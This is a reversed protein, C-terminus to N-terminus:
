FGSPAPSIITTQGGRIQFVVLGRQIRGTPRLRFLGGVGSFGASAEIAPRSFPRQPNRRVLEAALSVADYGLGATANPKEGNTIEFARSFNAFSRDDPGAFIAGELARNAADVTSWQGSGMLQVGGLNAGSRQLAAVIASPVQGGEPIYLGVGPALDPAISRAAASISDNNSEHRAVRSLNGGGAILTARLQREVLDGYSGKPLMAFVRRVGQSMTYNVTREIDAQPPFTLLYVGPRARNQDSSFGIMPRGSPETIASAASVSSSFLPGIVIGAGESIAESALIQAQSSQGKTDKIVLQLRGTGHDRMALKAAKAIQRGAIGGGGPAGMPVLLAVRHPGSGIIEGNANPAVIPADAPLREGNKTNQLGGPTQRPDPLEFRNQCGALLVVGLLLALWTLSRLPHFSTM